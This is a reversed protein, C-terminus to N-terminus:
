GVAPVAPPMNVLRAVGDQSALAADVALLSASTMAFALVFSAVRSMLRDATRTM